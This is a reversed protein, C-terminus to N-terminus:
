FCNQKMWQRLATIYKKKQFNLFITPPPPHPILGGFLFEIVFLIESKDHALPRMELSRNLDQGAFLGAKGSAVQSERCGPIYHLM